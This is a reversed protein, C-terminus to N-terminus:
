IYPPMSGSKKLPYKHHPQHRWHQQFLKAVYKHVTSKPQSVNSLQLFTSLVIKGGTQVELETAALQEENWM